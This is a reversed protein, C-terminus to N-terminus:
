SGTKLAEYCSEIEGAASTDGAQLAKKYWQLAEQINGLGQYCSGVKTAAFSYGKEYARRYWEIAKTKDKLDYEYHRGVSMMQSANGDAAIALCWKEGEESGGLAAYCSGIEGAASDDGSELAKKYWQLAEQINGLGQYCFGVKTAALSYGKEYARRYWEIAKTKDKLDYECHRGVSMMQSANGDAAITRSWEEGEESRGLAAYCPGIEGAASDDGSELAKKYWQLAKEIDGLAQYCSGVKTAASGYGKEYARKYWEISKTKDKLDYEYHRGISMMQSADGEAIIKKEIEEPQTLTASRVDEEIERGSQLIRHENLIGNLRYRNGVYGGLSVFALGAAVGASIILPLFLPASLGTAGTLVMGAVLAVVAAVFFIAAFGAIQKGAFAFIVREKLTQDKDIARKLATIATDMTGSVALNTSRKGYDRIAYKGWAEARQMGDCSLLSM